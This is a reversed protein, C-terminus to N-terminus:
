KEIREFDGVHRFGGIWFQGKFNDLDYTFSLAKSDAALGLLSKIENEFHRQDPASIRFSLRKAGLAYVQFTAPFIPFHIIKHNM